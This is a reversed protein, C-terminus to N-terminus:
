SRTKKGWYFSVLGLVVVVGVLAFIANRIVPSQLLSRREPQKQEVESDTAKSATPTEEEKPAVIIRGPPATVKSGTKEQKAKTEFKEKKAQKPSPENDVLGGLGTLPPLTKEKVLLKGLRKEWPVSMLLDVGPKEGRITCTCPGTLFRAARDLNEESIGKGIFPFLTIGRGFIPFLMPEDFEHLDPEVQLLTRILAQDANRRSLRLVAFDIKLPTGLELKDEPDDTLEPLKLTKSLKGLSKKSLKEAADDLKPKGSELLVFVATHGKLLLSAIKQRFPSDLLSKANKLSFPESIPSGTALSKAPFMLTMWPLKKEADKPLLKLWRKDVQKDSVDIARLKVNCPLEISDIQKELTEFDSKVQGTLPGDHFVLLEYSELNWKELAYRFVPVNCADVVGVVLLVSALALVAVRNYM